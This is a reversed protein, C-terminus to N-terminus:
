TLNCHTHLLFNILNHATANVAGDACICENGSVMILLEYSFTCLSTTQITNYLGVNKVNNTDQQQQSNENKWQKVLRIHVGPLTIVVIFYMCCQVAMATQLV